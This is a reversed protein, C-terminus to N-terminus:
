LTTNHHLKYTQTNTYVKTQPTKYLTHLTSTRGTYLTSNWADAHNRQFGKYISEWSLKIQLEAPPM